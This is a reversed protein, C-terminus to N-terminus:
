GMLKLALIKSWSEMEEVFGMLDKTRFEIFNEKEKVGGYEVLDVVFCVGLHV